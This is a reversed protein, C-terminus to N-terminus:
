KADQRRQFWKILEVIPIVMFALMMAIAYEEPDNPM